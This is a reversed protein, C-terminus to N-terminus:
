RKGLPVPDGIIFVNTKFRLSLRFGAAVLGWHGKPDLEASNCEGSEITSARNLRNLDEIEKDTQYLTRRADIPLYIDNTSQSNACTASLASITTLVILLFIKM